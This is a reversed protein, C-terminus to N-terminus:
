PDKGGRHTEKDKSQRLRRLRESAVREIWSGRYEARLRDFAAIADTTKGERALSEAQQFEEEGITLVRAAIRGAEKSTIDIPVKELVPPNPDTLIGFAAPNRERFLRARMDRQHNMADGGQRGGLPDIDAIALGDPGEARAIIKGRPSIVMSGNGRFAVVLYLHNEAARVRLAQLGIDDVGVAAGGMTPFFVIDAGALALCRATEPFVLDYCILMGVTGLDSTPFVPLSEGRKRAGCESWTPCTKHYRGIEKGDRGLFFATNYTAGDSEIFDSCVVLYMRHSAAARGLRDLMRSVAKPVVEKAIPENMGYWSLLGLTDEPFALVDCKQDGAKHVIEELAVLNKDVAALVRGPDGIRWDVLRRQAQVAAVRITAPGTSAAEALQITKDAGRVGAAEGFAIVALITTLCLSTRCKTTNTM